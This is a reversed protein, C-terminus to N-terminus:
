DGKLIKNIVYRDTTGYVLIDLYKESAEDFVKEVFAPENVIRSMYKLAKRKKPFLIWWWKKFKLKYPKAHIIADKCQQAVSNIDNIWSSESM